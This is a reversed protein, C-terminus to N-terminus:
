DFVYRIIKDFGWTAGLILMNRDHWQMQIEHHCVDIEIDMSRLSLNLSSWQHTRNRSDWPVQLFAIGDAADM